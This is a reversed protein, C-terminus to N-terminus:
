KKISPPAVKGYTTTQSGYPFLGESAIAYTGPLYISLHFLFPLDCFLAPRQIINLLIPIARLYAPNPVLKKIRKVRNKSPPKLYTSKLAAFSLRPHLSARGSREVGAIM